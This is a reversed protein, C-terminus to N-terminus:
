GSEEQAARIIEDQTIRVNGECFVEQVHFVPTFLLGVAVGACLIVTFLLVMKIRPDMWSKKRHRM